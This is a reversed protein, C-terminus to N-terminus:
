IYFARDAMTVNQLRNGSEKTSNYYYLLIKGRALPFDPKKRLVKKLLCWVM